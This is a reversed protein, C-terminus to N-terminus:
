VYLFFYYFYIKIVNKESDKLLVPYSLQDILPREFRKTSTLYTITPKSIGVNTTKEYKDAGFLLVNTLINKELNM